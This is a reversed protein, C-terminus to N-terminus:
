RFVVEKIYKEKVTKNLLEIIKEKAFFLEQKLPASTLYLYLIGNHVYIHKTHKAITTGMIKEWCDVIKIENMKNRLRYTDLLQTIVTKLSQENNKKRM